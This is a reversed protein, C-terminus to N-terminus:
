KDMLAEFTKEWMASETFRTEVDKRARAAKRKASEPDALANLIARALGKPDDPRAIWGNEGLMWANAGVDTVACPVRAAMAELLTWPMGEKLSPLVFLDAGSLLEAANERRGPLFVTQELGLSKRKEEIKKRREGEGIIVFKAAPAEDHVIRVADLYGPINKTAFFNAITIIVRTEPKPNRTETNLFNRKPVGFDSDRFGFGSHDILELLRKRAADRDMLQADFARLDLGNPIMVIREKPIIRRKKALEEDRPHLVIIVDKYPATLWETLIRIRKQTRSVPDLFSWGGIRYVTRKVGAMKATISGVVGAKSSHLYATDPRWSRMLAALERLALLDKVPSVSRGMHKLTRYEINLEVCRRKLDSEGGAAILTKWGRREAEKAAKLVYSQAGGWESLTIVFLIRKANEM